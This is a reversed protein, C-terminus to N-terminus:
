AKLPAPTERPPAAARGALEEYRDLMWQVCPVVDHHQRILPANVAVLREKLAARQPLVDILSAAISGPTVPDVVFANDGRLVESYAEVRSVVPILGVFMAELLSAALLDDHGVCLYVDAAHLQAVMQAYTQSGLFRVHPDIGLEDVRRRALALSRRAVANPPRHSFWFQTDPRRALVLPIAEIIEHVRWHPVFQRNHLVVATEPGCGLGSRIAAGAAPGAPRDLEALPIGWSHAEFRRPTVGLVEALRPGVVATSAFVLDAGRVSRRIVSRLVPHRLLPEGLVPGYVTVVLPTRGGAM